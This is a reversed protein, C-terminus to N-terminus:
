CKKKRIESFKENTILCVELARIIRQTDNPHIKKTAEFDMTELRKYLSELGFTEMDCILEARILEDRDPLEALGEILSYFYM